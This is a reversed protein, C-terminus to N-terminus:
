KRKYQPRCLQTDMKLLDLDSKYEPTEIELIDLITSFINDHSFQCFNVKTQYFNSIKREKKFEESFWFVMPVTKQERPALVYPLSHLYIGNEGLSEGHDSVYLLSTDIKPALTKLYDIIKSVVFDTYLITNDYANVIEEQSCKSLDSTDCSPKFVNFEDPYRLYYSPGHSGLTHLIIFQDEDTTSIEKVANVLIEDFCTSTKCLEKTRYKTIDVIKVRDCVGQCGTNNDIWQVDYGAKKVVDLLNGRSGYSDNDFNERGLDSFICPVSVATATGCSVVNSFTVVDQKSLLPNTINNEYGNLSFHDARATEGLVLVVLKKRKSLTSARKAHGGIAIFNQKQPFTRVKWYRGVEYIPGIPNVMHRIQRNNRLFSAYDKYFFASIIIVASFFVGVIKLSDTIRSRINENEIKIFSLSFSFVFIFALNWLVLNINLYQTAEGYSTEFVSKTITEDIIVGYTSSFYSSSAAICLFIFAGLRPLNFLIFPITSLLILCYILVVASLNFLATDIGPIGDQIFILKIAQQNFFATLIAALVGSFVLPRCILTDDPFKLIKRLYQM